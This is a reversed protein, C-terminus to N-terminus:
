QQKINQWYEPYDELASIVITESCGQMACKIQRKKGAFEHISDRDYVHGCKKNIVPNVIDKKSIPDKRSHQVQMVEMEDDSNEAGDGNEIANIIDKFVQVEGGKKRSKQMKAEWMEVMKANSPMDEQGNKLEENLKDFIEEIKYAESELNMMNKVSELLIEKLEESETEDMISNHQHVHLADEACKKLSRRLAKMGNTFDASM